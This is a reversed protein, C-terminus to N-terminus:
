LAALIDRARACDQAMQAVLAPLGDFRVEPRLFAVLGVSLHTDYLDGSFDFVFTELNPRNVGFMPRVGLSAVGDYTGAHPGDLVDM